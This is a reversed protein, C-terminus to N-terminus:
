KQTASNVASNTASNVAKNTASNVASNTASNVAKNTASNVASNTASNVAQQSASNVAKNTASNVASNTASNVAQQSASNVAKNTASNVASNTASNVASNTASNVASNTASNVASNTASNVASNTASNVASNTASNVASNTASNVASNTASNVAQNSAANTADGTQPNIASGSSGSQTGLKVDGATPQSAKYRQAPALTGSTDSSPPIDTMYYVGALVAAAAIGTGIWMRKSSSGQKQTTMKYDGSTHGQRTDPHVAAPIGPIRGRAGPSERRGIVRSAGFLQLLRGRRQPRLAIREMIRDSLGQPPVAEPVAGLGTFIRRFQEYRERAAPDAAMIRDLEQVDQPAADGDLVANILLDLDARDM